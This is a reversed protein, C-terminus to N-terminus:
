KSRRTLWIALGVGLLSLPLLDTTVLRIRALTDRDLDVTSVDRDPPRISVKKAQDTAWGFANMVLNRNPEHGWNPDLLLQSDGFVVVRAEDFRKDAASTTNRTSAVVVPVSGMKEGDGPAAGEGPQMEVWASPSTLVLPVATVGEATGTRLVTLGRVTPFETILQLRALPRTVEHDGYFPTLPAYPSGNTFELDVVMGPDVQVGYAALLQTLGLEVGTEAFVLLRGGADVYRRLAAEEAEGIRTSAGAVVVLAADKPVDKKGALSLPAPTYGEKVLSARLKSLGAAETSGPMPIGPEDIVPEGHGVVFYVKQEGVTGLKLLANTLDQEADAPGSFEVKVHSEAAGEGRVLVVQVQGERLQYKQALVPEKKPDKFTYEFREPAADRYRKFLTELVEYGPATPPLFAILRVKEGLGQVASVTQPSLSHLKRATLDWQTNRKAAVYNIATLGALVVAAIALTTALYFSGRKSGVTSLQGVHTALYVGVFLAGVVAKGGALVADGTVFFYTFPASLFLVLGLAGLIKGLNTAKM